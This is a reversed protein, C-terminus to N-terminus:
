QLERYANLHSIDIETLLNFAKRRVDAPADKFISVIELYKANFFIDFLLNNVTQRKAHQIMQLAEIINQRARRPKKIFLDLGQRHYQYIAKRFLEYNPNTLDAILQARNNPQASSRRWGPSSSTQAISVQNQARSFYPTGGLAEFSDFDYGLILYAYFNLLTTIGDFQLEDHVLTSNPIYQFTWNDDNYLFLTTQRTTNYIPRSSRIVLDATFTYNDSVSTLYIQIDAEIREQPMFDANTWDYGNIYNEIEEEFNDLYDLSAGAIRSRNVQVNVNLEQAFATYVSTLSLILAILIKKIFNKNFM